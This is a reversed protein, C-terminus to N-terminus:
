TRWRLVDEEDWTMGMGSSSLKAEIKAFKEQLRNLSLLFMRAEHCAVGKARLCLQNVIIPQM